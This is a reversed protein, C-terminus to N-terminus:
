SAAISRMAPQFFEFLQSLDEISGIGTADFVLAGYKTGASAADAFTYDPLLTRLPEAVRGKGGLLVPGPLAPEGQKYRRLNEPQPLGLKSALFQGPSSHVFSGYLNPAGKSKSAAM